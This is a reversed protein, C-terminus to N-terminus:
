HQSFQLNIGFVVIIYLNPLILCVNDSLTVFKYKRIVLVVKNCYSCATTACKM